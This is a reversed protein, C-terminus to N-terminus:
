ISTEASPLARIVPSRARTLPAYHIQRPCPALFGACLYICDPPIYDGTLQVAPWVDCIQTADFISNMNSGASDMITIANDWGDDPIWDQVVIKALTAHADHMSLVM